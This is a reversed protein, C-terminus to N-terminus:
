RSYIADFRVSPYPHIIRVRPIWNDAFRAFRKYSFNHTQSRRRLARIWHKRALEGFAEIRYGNGPVAYYNMHGQIVSRLWKAQELVPEHRRDWLENRIVRLKRAFRKKITIRRITFKKNKRTRACIHTFGLFDFTEPKRMGMQRCQRFAFVGFLILRTKQPHLSLGFKSLRMQLAEKFAKADTHHGFGVVFDDCYRIFIVSKWSYCKRWAEVWLDLAYHLYINALLPSIGSGQPSGIESDIKIGNELVGAKLWKSILSLVRKDGIRHGLFKLMWGHNINDFFGRIDADLLHSVRKRYIGVSLADLAQHQNRGKRFGYSFGMFDVEYICNLVDCLAMQVIKDELAAIGLPRKGGDPKPIYVRLSPVARYSGKHIREHLRSINGLLDERYMVWTVDDVGAAAVRNVSNFCNLLREENVHHLLATFRLNKDRQAAIRVGALGFSPKKRSQTRDSETRSINRKTM